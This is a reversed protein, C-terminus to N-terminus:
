ITALKRYTAEMRGMHTAQSARAEVIELNRRAFDSALAPKAILQAVCDSLRSVDKPDVLFGNWGDKIWERLSPLDSVVPVSGCAMAELLAMPTADSLPVSVTVASIRYLDPMQEYPITEMIRVADTLGLSGIREEIKASYSADGGHRKMLLMATQVKRRIGAFAEVVAELNYVSTFNRPSFVVTRGVAGLEHLLRNSGISPSFLSTDVGWQIVMVRAPELQFESRVLAALDESDCTIVSAARLGETLGRWQASSFNERRYVESGWVTVALPGPWARSVLEAFHAWHAHVIDPRIKWLLYRLELVVWRANRGKLRLPYQQVGQPYTGRDSFSIVSVRHGLKAFHGAWRELHVHDAWGVFCLKLSAQAM